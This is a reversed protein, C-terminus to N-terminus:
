SVLLLPTQAHDMPNAWEEKMDEDLIKGQAATGLVPSVPKLPNLTKRGAAAVPRPTPTHIAPTPPPFGEAGNLPLGELHEITNRKLTVGPMHAHCLM